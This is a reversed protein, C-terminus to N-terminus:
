QATVVSVSGTSQIGHALTPTVAGGSAVGSGGGGGGGCSVLILSLLLCAGFLVRKM